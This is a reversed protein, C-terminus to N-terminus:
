LKKKNNTTFNQHTQSAWQQSVWCIKSVQTWRRVDCGGEINRLCIGCILFSWYKCEGKMKSKTEIGGSLLCLHWHVQALWVVEEAETQTIVEESSSPINIRPPVLVNGMAEWAEDRACLWSSGTNDLRFFNSCHNLVWWFDSSATKSVNLRM